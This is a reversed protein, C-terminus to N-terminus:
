LQSFHRSILPCLSLGITVLLIWTPVVLGTSGAVVDSPAIFPYDIIHIIGNTTKINPRVVYCERGHWLIVYKFDGYVRGSAVQQRPGYYNSSGIRSNPDLEGYSSSSGGQGYTEKIKHWDPDQVSAVRVNDSYTPILERTGFDRGYSSSYNKLEEITVEQGIILHRDLV